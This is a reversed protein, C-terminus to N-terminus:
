RLAELLRVSPILPITPVACVGDFQLGALQIKRAIDGSAYYGAPGVVLKVLSLFAADWRSETCAQALFLRGGPRLLDRIRALFADPDMVYPFAHTTVVADFPAQTPVDHVTGNLYTIRPHSFQAKARLIMPGTPDVGVVEVKPLCDVITRDLQGIGCGVDLIRRADPCVQLLRQLVLERTPKLVFSQAIMNEYRPAWYEWAFLHRDVM